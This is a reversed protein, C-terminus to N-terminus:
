DIPEEGRGVGDEVCGEGKADRGESVFEPDVLSSPILFPEPPKGRSPCAQETSGPSSRSDKSCLCGCEGVRSSVQRQCAQPVETRRSGLEAQAEQGLGLATPQNRQSASLSPAPARATGQTFTGTILKPALVDTCINGIIKRVIFVWCSPLSAVLGFQKFYFSFNSCLSTLVALLAAGGGGDSM